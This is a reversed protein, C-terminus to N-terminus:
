RARSAAGGAGFEDAGAGGLALGHQHIELGSEIGIPVAPSRAQADFILKDFCVM